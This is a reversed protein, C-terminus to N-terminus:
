FYVVLSLRGTACTLSILFLCSAVLSKWGGTVAHRVLVGFSVKWLMVTGTLLKVSDHVVYGLGWLFGNVGGVAKPCHCHQM